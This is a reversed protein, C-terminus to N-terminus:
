ANVEWASPATVGHLMLGVFEDALQEPTLRGGPRYWTYIWNMMGFLAYAATRPSPAGQAEMTSALLNVYRRKLDRVTRDREGTLSEAERALVRMEDMHTAFFAVHHRVFARLAAAADRAGDVAAEAERLVREFTGREILFLLEEKGSVYYYMGALSMGSARAVARMTTAHYGDKAFVRAAAHLLRDLRADYPLSTM